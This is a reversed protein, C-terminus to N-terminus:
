RRKDPEQNALGVSTVAEGVFCITMDRIRDDHVSGQSHKGCNSDKTQAAGQWGRRLIRDDHFEKSRFPARATRRRVRYQDVQAALTRLATSVENQKSFVDIVPIVYSPRVAKRGGLEALTLVVVRAAKVQCEYVRRLHHDTPVNLEYAIFSRLNM